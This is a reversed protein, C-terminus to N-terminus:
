LSFLVDINITFGLWIDENQKVNVWEMEKM